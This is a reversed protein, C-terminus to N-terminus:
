YVVISSLICSLHIYIEQYYQQFPSPYPILQAPFTQIIIFVPYNIIYYRNLISQFSILALTNKKSFSSWLDIYLLLFTMLRCALVCDIHYCLVMIYSKHSYM